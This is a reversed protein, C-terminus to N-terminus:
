IGVMRDSFYTWNTATQYSTLLSAPVYISGYTGASASYGGIPTSTFANSNSLTCVSSGMLYLSVLNYCKSFAYNGIKVCSPVSVTMLKSCGAFTQNGINSALPASITTLNDCNNFIATALDRITPFYATELKSCMAFTYTGTSTCAPFDVTTLASCRSFAYTGIYEVNPMNVSQLKSCECFANNAISTVLPCNVTVLSTCGGFAYSGIYSGTSLSVETFTRNLMQEFVSNTDEGDGSGGSHTGAVGFISVGEAINSAVLNTDGVVTVQSLGDYGNDAVVKQDSTTPIVTKSQLTADVVTKGELATAIQALLETQTDVEDNAGDLNSVMADLGMTETYGCLERIEDAIATMKSNISM